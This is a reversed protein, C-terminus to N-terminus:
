EAAEDGSETDGDYAEEFYGAKLNAQIDEVTFGTVAAVKAQEDPSLDAFERPAPLDAMREAMRAEMGAAIGMLAPMAEMSAAMIRPDSAMHFSERAYKAGTATSFFADIEVLDSASFRIAYLEAMARRVRPEMLALVEKMMDPMMGLERKQREQWAPDFLSALENAQEDSLDLAYEEIGIKSSVTSAAGDPAIAMFPGLVGDMMSGMLEGMSGEPIVKAILLNASPLRTKQEATLPEVKFMGGFMEAMAAMEAAESAQATAADDQTAMAPSAVVLALVAAATKFMHKM